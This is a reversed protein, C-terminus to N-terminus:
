AEARWSFEGDHRLKGIMANKEKLEKELKASKTTDNSIDELRTQHGPLALSHSPLQTTQSVCRLRMPESKINRSRIYLLDCSPKSNLKLRAYRSM